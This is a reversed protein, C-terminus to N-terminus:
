LTHQLWLIEFWLTLNTLQMSLKRGTTLRLTHRDLQTGIMLTM